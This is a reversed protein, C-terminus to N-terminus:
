SSCPTKCAPELLYRSRDKARLGIKWCLDKLLCDQAKGATEIHHHGQNQILTLADLSLDHYDVRLVQVKL